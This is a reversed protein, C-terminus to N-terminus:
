EMTLVDFNESINIPTKGAGGGGGWCGRYSSFSFCSVNCIMFMM